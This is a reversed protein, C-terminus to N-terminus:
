LYVDYYYPGSSTADGDFNLILYQLDSAQNIVVDTSDSGVNYYRGKTWLDSVLVSQGTEYQEFGNLKLWNTYLTFSNQQGIANLQTQLATLSALFDDQAVWYVDVQYNKPNQAYIVFTPTVAGDAAPKDQHLVYIISTAGIDLFQPFQLYQGNLWYTFLGNLFNNTM